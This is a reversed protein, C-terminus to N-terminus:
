CLKKNNKNKVLLYPKHRSVKIANLQSGINTNTNSASNNANAYLLGANSGNNANGGVYLAKSM